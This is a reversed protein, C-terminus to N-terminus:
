DAHQASRVIALCGTVTAHDDPDPSWSGILLGTVEPDDPPLAPPTLVRVLEIHVRDATLPLSIRRRGRAEAPGVGRKLSPESVGDTDIIRLLQTIWLPDARGDYIWRTGLVSHEATTILAHGYATTDLPADRYTMPVQYVVGGDEVLHTEM